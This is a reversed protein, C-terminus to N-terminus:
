KEKLYKNYFDIEPQILNHKGVKVNVDKLLEMAYDYYEAKTLIKIMVDPLLELANYALWEEKGSRVDKLKDTEDRFDEIMYLLDKEIINLRNVYKLYIFDPNEPYMTIAKDALETAENLQYESMLYKIYSILLRENFASEIKRNLIEHAYYELKQAYWNKEEKIVRDFPLLAYWQMNNEEILINKRLLNYYRKEKDFKVLEDPLTGHNIVTITTPIYTIDKKSRLEEHVFGFFSATDSKKYLRTPWNVENDENFVQRFRIAIDDTKILTSLVALEFVLFEPSKISSALLEEDSDIIFLWGEPTNEDVYNRMYAYNEEWAVENLIVSDYNANRVTDITKDTSGTDFVYVEDCFDIISEIAKNIRAEQNKVLIAGNIKINTTEKLIKNQVQPNLLESKIKKRDIGIESLKINDLLCEINENSFMDIKEM